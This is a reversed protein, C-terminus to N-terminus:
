WITISVDINKMKSWDPLFYFRLGNSSGPLTTGIFRKQLSRELCCQAATGRIILALLIAYPFLATVYVVELVERLRYEIFLIKRESKWQKQHRQFHLCLRSDLRTTVIFITEM